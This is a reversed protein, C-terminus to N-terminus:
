LRVHVREESECRNGHEGREERGKRECEPAARGKLELDERKTM